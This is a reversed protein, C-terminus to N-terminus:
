QSRENDPRQQQYRQHREQNRRHFIQEDSNFYDNQQQQLAAIIEEYIRGLLLYCIKLEPHQLVSFGLLINGRM